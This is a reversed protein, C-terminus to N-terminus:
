EFENSFSSGRKGKKITAPKEQPPLPAVVPEQKEKSTRHSRVGHSSGSSAEVPKAEEPVPAPKLQRLAVELTLDKSPVVMSRYPEFGDAEVRLPVAVDSAAVKIPNDTVLMENLFIRAAPPAGVVHLSATRPTQSAPAPTEPVNPKPSLPISVPKPEDRRITGFAVVLGVAIAAVAGLGVWMWRRVRQKYRTKAWADPTVGKSVESLVDRAVGSRDSSGSSIKSGLDGAAFSRKKMGSAIQTLKEQRKEFGSMGRIAGLMEEATQYRGAPDRHLAKMVVPEAESPFGAFAERPPKPEATLINILLVNYNEGEFPLKGTLMEYLIVGMSYLDTRHDLGSSCRAQEPSMYLPTGLMSGTHTLRTADEAATFKSIGFDILKVDTTEGRQIALFINEPKLDRHIIGKEHAAGLAFLVPELIGCAAGVDIPGTRHLMSALSEGELYEMVMFPEGRSSVGVDMVDIINKHGIAAAAQAERYFRKVVEADGALEAHLFKVAVKRGIVTHQGLYVTGMGGKGLLRVIRYKGELVQGSYDINSM